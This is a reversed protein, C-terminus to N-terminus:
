KAACDASDDFTNEAGFTDACIDDCADDGGWNCPDNTGCTCNNYEGQTCYGEVATADTCDRLDHCIGYGDYYVYPYGYYYFLDMCFQNEGCGPTADLSDCFATCVEGLCSLGPLCDANESCASGEAVTGAEVCVGGSYDDAMYCSGSDCGEGSLIECLDPCIADEPCLIGGTCLFNETALDCTAGEAILTANPFETINVKNSEKGTSDILWADVSTIQSFWDGLDVGNLVTYAGTITTAGDVEEQNIFEFAGFPGDFLTAGNADKFDVILGVVDGEVDSGNM